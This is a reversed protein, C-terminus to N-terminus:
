FIPAKEDIKFKKPPSWHKMPVKFVEVKGLTSKKVYYLFGLEYDQELTAILEKM